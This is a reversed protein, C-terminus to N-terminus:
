TTEKNGSGTAGAYGSGAAPEPGSSVNNPRSLRCCPCVMDYGLTCFRDTDICAHGCKNNGECGCVACPPSDPDSRVEGTRDRMTYAWHARVIPENRGEVPPTITPTTM